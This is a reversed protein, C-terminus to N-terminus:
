SGRRAERRAELDYRVNAANRAHQSRGTEAGAKEPQPLALKALLRDVAL